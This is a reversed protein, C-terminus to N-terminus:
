EGKVPHRYNEKTVAESARKEAPPRRPHRRSYGRAVLAMVLGLVIPGGIVPLLWIWEIEM